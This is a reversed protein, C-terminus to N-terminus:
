ERWFYGEGPIGVHHGWLQDHYATKDDEDCYASKVPGQFPIKDNLLINIVRETNATNAQSWKIVNMDM